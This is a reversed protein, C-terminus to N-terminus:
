VFCVMAFWINVFMTNFYNDLFCASRLISPTPHMHYFLLLPRTIKLRQPSPNFPTLLALLDTHHKANLDKEEQLASQLAIIEDQLQQQTSPSASAAPQSPTPRPVLVSPTQVDQDESRDGAKILAFGCGMISSTGIEDIVQADVKKKLKVGFHKFGRGLDHARPTTAIRAIHNIMFAALNIQEGRDMLDTLCQDMTGAQNCGQARPIINSILFWFILQHLLQLDGKKVAQPSKL